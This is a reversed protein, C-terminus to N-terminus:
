LFLRRDRPNVEMPELVNSTISAAMSTSRSWIISILLTVARNSREPPRCGVHMGVPTHSALCFTQQSQLESM